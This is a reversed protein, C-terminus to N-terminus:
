TQRGKRYGEEILDRRRIGHWGERDELHEALLAGCNTATSILLEKRLERVSIMEVAADFPTINPGAWLLGAKLADVQRTGIFAARGDIEKTIKGHVKGTEDRIEMDFYLKM